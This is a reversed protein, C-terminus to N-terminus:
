SGTCNTTTCMTMVEPSVMAVDNITHAGSVLLISEREKGGERGGERERERVCVCM